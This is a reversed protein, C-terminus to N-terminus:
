KVAQLTVTIGDVVNWLYRRCWKQVRKPLIRFTGFSMFTTTVIRFNTKIGYTPSEFVQFTYETFFRVHTPDTFAGRSTYYPVSILVTAGPKCIRYVEEM